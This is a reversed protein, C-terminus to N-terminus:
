LHPQSFLRQKIPCLIPPFILRKSTWHHRSNGFLGKAIIFLRWCGTKSFMRIMHVASFSVSQVLKSRAMKQGCWAHSWNPSIIRIAPKSQSCLFNNAQRCCKGKGCASAKVLSSTSRFSSKLFGPCSTM